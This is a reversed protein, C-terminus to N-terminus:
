GFRWCNRLSMLATAEVKMPRYALGNVARRLVSGEAEFSPPKPAASLEGAVLVLLRRMRQLERWARRRSENAANLDPCDDPM